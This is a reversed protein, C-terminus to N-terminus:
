CGGWRNGLQPGVKYTRIHIDTFGAERLSGEQTNDAVLSFSSGIRKGAERYLEDWKSLAAVADVTGDDSYFKTDMEVDEIWGGPQLARFAEKFLAPWDRIAGFLYRTHIFDFHNEPYTWSLTADDIELKLNAPIWTPAMPSLDTGIIQAGPFENAFDIAWIGTGTGM